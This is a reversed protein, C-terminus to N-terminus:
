IMGNKFGIDEIYKALPKDSLAAQVSKIYHMNHIDTAIFDILNYELLKHAQKKVVAGYHGGISPINLQFLVGNEHLKHFIDPREYWYGYREPHALIAIYGANQMESIIEFYNPMPIFYSFEILVAKQAGMTLLERNQIRKQFGNDVLYEAAYSLEIGLNNKQVAELLPEFAKAITDATNKYVEQQIHPTCIIKRFGLERTKQLLLLSDEISKSGDDIGPIFHSHMDAGITSFDALAESKGFLNKFLGM